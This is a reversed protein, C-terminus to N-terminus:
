YNFSEGDDFYLWGKALSDPAAGIYVTLNFGTHNRALLSSRKVQDKLLLISGSRVFVYVPPRPPSGDDTNAYSPIRTPKSSPQGPLPYPLHTFFDYWLLNPAGPLFLEISFITTLLTLPNSNVSMM